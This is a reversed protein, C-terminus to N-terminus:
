VLLTLAKPSGYGAQCIFPLWDIKAIVEDWIAKGLARIAVSENDAHFISIELGGAALEFGDHGTEAQSSVVAPFVRELCPSPQSRHKSQVQGAWCM